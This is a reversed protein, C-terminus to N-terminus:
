ASAIEVFAWSCIFCWPFLAIGHLTVVTGIISTQVVWEHNPVYLVGCVIGALWSLGIITLATAKM